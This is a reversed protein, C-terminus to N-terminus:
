GLVFFAPGADPAHFSSWGSDWIPYDLKGSDHWCMQLQSSTRCAIESGVIAANLLVLADGGLNDDSVESELRAVLAQTTPAEALSTGVKDEKSLTTRDM